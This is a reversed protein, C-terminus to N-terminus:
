AELADLRSNITTLMEKIEKLAMVGLVGVLEYHVAGPNGEADRPVLGEKLEPIEAVEEAILGFARPSGPDENRDLYSVPKLSTLLDLYGGQILPEIEKKFRRSSTNVRLFGTANTGTGGAYVQRVTYASTGTYVGLTNAYISDGIDLKNFYSTGSTALIGSGFMAGKSFSALDSNFIITTTSLDLTYMQISAAEYGVPRPAEIRLRGYTVDGDGFIAGPNSGSNTHFTLKNSVENLSIRPFTTPVQTRIINGTLVGTYVYDAVLATASVTGAELLGGDIRGVTGNVKQLLAVVNPRDFSTTPLYSAAIQQTTSYSNLTSTLGGTTVYNALSATTAYNSLSATTAYGEISSGAALGIVADSAYLKGEKTVRFPASSGSNSGIWLRYTPDDASLRVIPYISGVQNGLTINGSSEIKTNSSSISGVTQATGNITWGGIFGKRADILGDSSQIVVSQTGDAAHAYLGNTQM